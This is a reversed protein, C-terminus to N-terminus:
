SFFVRSDRLALIEGREAAFSVDQIARFDGYYKTLGKVEVM